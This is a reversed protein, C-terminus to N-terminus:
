EFKAKTSAYRAKLDADSALGAKIEKYTSAGLANAALLKLVNSAAKKKKDIQNNVVNLFAVEWDKAEIAELKAADGDTSSLAQWRKGTIKDDPNQIKANQQEIMGSVMPSITSTISEVAMETIVYTKLQDDTIEEDQAFAMTVSFVILLLATIKRM